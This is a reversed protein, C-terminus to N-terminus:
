PAAPRADTPRRSGLAELQRLVEIAEAQVRRRMARHDEPSLKGTQLEFDLDQLSLVLQRRRAELEETDQARNQIEPGAPGRLPLLIWATLVIFILTLFLM